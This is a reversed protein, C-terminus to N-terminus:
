EWSYRMYYAGYDYTVSNYNTSYYYTVTSYQTTQSYEYDCSTTGYGTTWCCYQGGDMAECGDALAPANALALLASSSLLGIVVNSKM